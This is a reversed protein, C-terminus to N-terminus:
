PKSEDNGFRRTLVRIGDPARRILSHLRVRGEGVQAEARILFYRSSVSLLDRFEDQIGLAQLCNNVDEFPYDTDQLLGATDETKREGQLAALLPPVVTNCNIRTRQPLVCVAPALAEYIRPEIGRVLRLESSSVLPQNGALYPPVRGLYFSDEAGDPFRPDQDPDLWDALAQAIAQAQETDLPPELPLQELLRQLLQLQVPDILDNPQGSGGAKAPPPNQGDAPPNGDAGQEKYLNNLNFCGQLDEIRGSIFGGDVPLAPPLNAWDELRDDIESNALDRQLILLAWEEAGLAYLRAQQQHQILTSRRIALTQLSALSVAAASALFVVLLVTLLAVGRSSNASRTAAVAPAVPYGALFGSNSLPRM